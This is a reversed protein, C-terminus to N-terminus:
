AGDPGFLVTRTSHGGTPIGDVIVDMRDAALPTGKLTLRLVRSPEGVYLFGDAPFVISSLSDLGTAFVWLIRWEMAM